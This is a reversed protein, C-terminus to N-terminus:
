SINPDMLALGPAIQTGPATVLGIEPRSFDTPAVLRGYIDLRNCFRLTKNWVVLFNTWQLAPENPQLQTFRDPQDCISHKPGQPPLSCVTPTTTRLATLKALGGSLQRGLRSPPKARPRLM